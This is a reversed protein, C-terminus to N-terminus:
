FDGSDMLLTIKFLGFLFTTAPNVGLIDYKSTYVNKCYNISLM